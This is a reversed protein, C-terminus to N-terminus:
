EDPDATGDPIKKGQMKIPHARPWIYEKKCGIINPYKSFSSLLYISGAVKEIKPAEATSDPDVLIVKEKATIMSSVVEDTSSKKGIIKM